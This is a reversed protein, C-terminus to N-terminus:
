GKVPNPAHRPSAARRRSSPPAAPTSRLEEEFQIQWELAAVEFTLDGIRDFDSIGSQRNIKSVVGNLWEFSEGFTPGLNARNKVVWARLIAWWWEGVGGNVAVLLKPDIRGGRALAGIREWFDFVSHAPGPTLNAPDVGADLDLLVALQVRLLRESAWEREFETLQNTATVNGQLRLQRYLAVFTVALVLGSVASWFWESGPGILVLDTTNIFPV